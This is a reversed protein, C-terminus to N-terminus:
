GIKEDDEGEKYEMEIIKDLVREGEFKGLADALKAQYIPSMCKFKDLIIWGTKTLDIDHYDVTSNCVECIFGQYMKGQYKGCKCRYREKFATEDSFDTGFFPSQLGTEIRNNHDKKDFSEVSTLRIGNGSQLDIQCVTDLDLKVIRVHEVNLENIRSM